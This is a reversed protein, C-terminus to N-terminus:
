GKIWAGPAPDHRGGFHTSTLDYKEDDQHVWAFQRSDLLPKFDSIYKTVSVLTTVFDGSPPPCLHPMGFRGLVNVIDAVHRQRFPIDWVDDLRRVQDDRFDRVSRRDDTSM